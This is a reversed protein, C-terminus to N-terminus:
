SARKRRRASTASGGGSGTGTAARAATGTALRRISGRHISRHRGEKETGDWRLTRQRERGTCVKDAAARRRGCTRDSRRRPARAPTVHEVLTPPPVALEYPACRKQNSGRRRSSIASGTRRRSTVRASRRSGGTSCRRMRRTLRLCRRLRGQHRASSRCRCRPDRRRPDRWRCRRLGRSWRLDASVHVGRRAVSGSRLVAIDRKRCAESPQLSTM